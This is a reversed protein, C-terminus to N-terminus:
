NVVLHNGLCGNGFEGVDRKLGLPILHHGCDGAVGPGVDCGGVVLRVISHHLDVVVVRIDGTVAVVIHVDTRVRIHHRNTTGIRVGVKFAHHVIHADVVLGKSSRIHRTQVVLVECFATSSIHFWRHVSM